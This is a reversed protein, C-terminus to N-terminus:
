GVIFDRYERNRGKRMPRAMNLASPLARVTTGLPFCLLLTAVINGARRIGTEDQLGWLTKAVCSRPATQSLGLRSPGRERGPQMPPPSSQLIFSVAKYPSFRSCRETLLPIKIQPVACNSELYRHVVCPIALEAESQWLCTETALPSNSAGLRNVDIRERFRDVGM